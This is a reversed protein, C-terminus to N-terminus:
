RWGEKDHKAQIEVMREINKQKKLIVLLQKYGQHSPYYFDPAPHTMGTIKYYENVGRQHERKMADLTLQSLAIQQECLSIAKQLNSEVDRLKYHKKIKEQLEFHLKIIIEDPLHRFGDLWEDENM